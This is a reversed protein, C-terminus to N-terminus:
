KMEKLSSSPDEGEGMKTQTHAQRIPQSIPLNGKRNRKQREVKHKTKEKRRKDEIPTKRREKIKGQQQGEAQTWEVKDKTKRRYEECFKM